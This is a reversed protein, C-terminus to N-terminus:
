SLLYIVDNTYSCSLCHIGHEMLIEIINCVSIREITVDTTRLM